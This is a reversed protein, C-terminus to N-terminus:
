AVNLSSKAADLSVLNM